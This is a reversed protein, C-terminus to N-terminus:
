GVDELVDDEGPDYSSFAFCLIRGMMERNIYCHNGLSISSSRNEKIVWPCAPSRIPIPMARRCVDITYWWTYWRLRLFVCVLTCCWRSWSPLQFSINMKTSAGVGNGETEIQPTKTATAAAPAAPLMFKVYPIASTACISCTLDDYSTIPLVKFWLHNVTWISSVFYGKSTISRTRTCKLKSHTLKTYFFDHIYQFINNLFAFRDAVQSSTIVYLDDSPAYCKVPFFYLECYKKGRFCRIVKRNYVFHELM